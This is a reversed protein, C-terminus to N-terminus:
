DRGGYVKHYALTSELFDVFNKFQKPLDESDMDVYSYAVEVVDRFTSIRSESNRNTVRATAYALKPRILVFASKENEIGVNQIRKIEGFFNRIQSTTLANWGPRNKNLDCLFKGLDDTYDVCTKDISETIWEPNFKQKFNNSKTDKKFNAM